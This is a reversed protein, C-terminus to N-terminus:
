FRLHPLMQQLHIHRHIRKIQGWYCLMLFILSPFNQFAWQCGKMLVYRGILFDPVHQSAMSRTWKFHRNTWPNRMMEFTQKSSIEFQKWQLIVRPKGCWKASHINNSYHTRKGNCCFLSKKKHCVCDWNNLPSEDISELDSIMVLSVFVISNTERNM